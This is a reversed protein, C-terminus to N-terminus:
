FHSNTSDHHLMLGFYGYVPVTLQLSTWVLNNQGFVFVTSTVSLMDFKRQVSSFRKFFCKGHDVFNDFINSIESLMDASIQEYGNALLIRRHVHTLKPFRRLSLVYMRGSSSNRKPEFLVFGDLFRQFLQSFDTM